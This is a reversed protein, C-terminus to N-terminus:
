RGKFVEMISNMSECDESLRHNMAVAVYNDPEEPLSNVSRTINEYCICFVRRDDLVKLDKWREYTDAYRFRYYDLKRQKWSKEM